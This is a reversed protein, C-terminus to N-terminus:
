AASPGGQKQIRLYERVLRTIRRRIKQEDTPSVSEMGDIHEQLITKAKSPLVSLFRDTIHQPANKLALAMEEGPIDRMIQRLVREDLTDLAAFSVRQSALDRYLEVNMVKIFESIQHEAGEDLNDFIDLLLDTGAMQVNNVAPIKSAKTALERAVSLYTDSTLRQLKALELAVEGQQMSPLNRMLSGSQSANLQSLIIAVIGAPEDKMLLYLQPESMKELFVFPNKTEQKSVTFQKIQLQNQFYTLAELTESLNKTPSEVVLQHLVKYDDHTINERAMNLLSPGFQSLATQLKAKQQEDTMMDRIVATLLDPRGVSTTVINSKLKESDAVENARQINEPLMMMMEEKQDPIKIEQRRAVDDLQQQFRMTDVKNKRMLLVVLVVLFLFLVLFLINTPSFLSASEMPEQTTQKSSDVYIISQQQSPTNDKGATEKESSKEETLTQSPQLAMQQQLKSMVEPFAMELLEVRDGRTRSLKGAYFAINELLRLLEGDSKTGNKDVLLRVVIKDLVYTPKVQSKPSEFGKVGPLMLDRADREDEAPFEESISADANLLFKLEPYYKRIEISIRSEVETEVIKKQSELDAILSTAGAIVLFFLVVLQKM